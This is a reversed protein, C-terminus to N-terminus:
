AILTKTPVGLFTSILLWRAAKKLEDFRRFYESNENGIKEQDFIVFALLSASVITVTLGIVILSRKIKDRM